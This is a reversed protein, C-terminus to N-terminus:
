PTDFQALRQAILQQWAEVSPIDRPQIAGGGGQQAPQTLHAWVSRAGAHGRSGPSRRTAHLGCPRTAAPVIGADTNARYAPSSHSPVIGGNGVWAPSGKMSLCATAATSARANTPAACAPLVSSAMLCRPWSTQPTLGLRGPKEAASLWPLQVPRSTSTHLAMAAVIRFSGLLILHTGSLADCRKAASCDPSTSM